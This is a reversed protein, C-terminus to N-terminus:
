AQRLGMLAAGPAPAFRAYFALDPAAAYAVAKALFGLGCFYGLLHLPSVWGLLGHRAAIWFPLLTCLAALAIILVDAM